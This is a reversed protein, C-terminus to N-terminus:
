KGYNVKGLIPHNTKQNKKNHLNRGCLQKKIQDYEVRVNLIIVAKPLIERERVNLLRKFM